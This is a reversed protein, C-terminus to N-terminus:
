ANIIAHLAKVESLEWLHGYKIVLHIRGVPKDTWVKVIEGAAISKDDEFLTDLIAKDINDRDPKQDHLQLHMAERKKKSWSKPMPIYAIWSVCSPKGEIPGVKARLEDAFARYKVVCPRKKWKDRQTMRPKGIPTIDITKTITTM